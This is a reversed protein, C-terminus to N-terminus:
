VVLAPMLFKIEIGVFDFDEFVDFKCSIFSSDGGTEVDSRMNGWFLSESLGEVANLRVSLMRVDFCSMIIADPKM